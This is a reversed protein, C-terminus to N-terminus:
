AEAIRPKKKLAPLRERVWTAQAEPDARSLRKRPRQLSFGMPHLLRPIHQPHYSVGFREKVLAAVAKGTWMGSSLGAALPGSEVLVALEERQAESLRSESRGPKGSRLGEVGERAYRRLWGNMTSRGVELQGALDVVRQGNVYGLVARARLWEWLFGHARSEDRFRELEAINEATRREVPIAEGTRSRAM